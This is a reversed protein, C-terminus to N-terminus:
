VLNHRKVGSKTEIHLHLYLLVTVNYWCCHCCFLLCVSSLIRVPVSANNGHGFRAGADFGGDVIVTSGPPYVPGIPYYALPVSSAMSTVPMTQPMPVYMSTGPYAASLGAM